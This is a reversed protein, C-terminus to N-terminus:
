DPLHGWTRRHAVDSVAGRNIGMDRAIDSVREGAKYRCRIERVQAETYHARGNASGVNKSAGRGPRSIPGPINRWTDASVARGISQRSVGLMAAIEAQTVNGQAYFDRAMCVQLENLGGVHEAKHRRPEKWALNEARNDLKNGSLQHAHYDRHLAL